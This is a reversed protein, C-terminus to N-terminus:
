EKNEDYVYGFITSANPIIMKGNKNRYYLYLAEKNKIVPDNVDMRSRIVAMFQSFTLDKPVLFKKKDLTKLNSNNGPLCIIPIRNPNRALIGKISKDM